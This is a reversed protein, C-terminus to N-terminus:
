YRNDRDNDYDEVQMWCAETFQAMLSDSMDDEGYIKGNYAVQVDEVVPDSRDPDCHHLHQKNNGPEFAFAVVCPPEDSDWEDPLNWPFTIKM